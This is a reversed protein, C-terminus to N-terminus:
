YSFKGIYESNHKFKKNYVMNVTSDIQSIVGDIAVVDYYSIKELAQSITQLQSSTFDPFVYMKILYVASVTRSM